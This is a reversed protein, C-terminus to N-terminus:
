AGAAGQAQQYAQANNQPPNSPLKPQNGEGPEQSEQQQQMQQQQMQMQMQQMQQQFLLEQQMQIRQMLLPMNEPTRKQWYEDKLAENFIALYMEHPDTPTPPLLQGDGLIQTVIKLGDMQSKRMGGDIQSMDIDLGMGDFVTKWLQPRIGMMSPDNATAELIYRANQALATRKVFQDGVATFLQIDGWTTRGTMSRLWDRDAFTEVNALAFKAWGGMMAQNYLDIATIIPVKSVEFVNTMEASSRRGKAVQGLVAENAGFIDQIEKEEQNMYPMLTVTEDYNNGAVRVAENPSSEWPIVAGPANCDVDWAPGDIRKLWPRNITKNKSDLFQNHATSLQMFANRAIEAKSMPICGATDEILHAAFLLPVRDNVTPNRQIRLCTARAGGFMTGFMQIVYRKLPPHIKGTAQCEQCEKQGSTLSADNSMWGTGGCHSCPVGMGTDLEGTKEDIALLPWATWLQKISNRPKLVMDSLGYKQALRRRLSVEDVQSLAYQNGNEDLAKEINLWGFPNITPEYDNGRLEFNTIHARVMPCPQREVPDLQILQDVFVADVDLPQFETRLVKPVVKQWIAVTRGFQDQTIATEQGMQQRFAQMAMSAQMPDNPLVRSEPVVEDQKAFDVMAWAHGYKVFSGASIRYKAQLNVEKSNKDLLINAADVAQQSPNYLPHEFTNEPKKAKVPLGDQWSINCQFNLISDMQRHVVSPTVKATKFDYPDVMGPAKGYAGSPKPRVFPQDIEDANFKVRWMEDARKWSWHMREQQMLYPIFFETQIYGIVKKCLEQNEAFNPGFTPVVEDLSPDLEPNGTQM